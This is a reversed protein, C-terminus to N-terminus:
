TYIGIMDLVFLIYQGRYDEEKISSNKAWEPDVTMEARGLFLYIRRFYEERGGRSGPIGKIPIGVPM